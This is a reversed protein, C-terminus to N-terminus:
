YFVRHLRSVVQVLRSHLDVQCVYYWRNSSQKKPTLGLVATLMRGDPSLGLLSSVWADSFQLPLWLDGPTAIAKVESSGLDVRYLGEWDAAWGPKQERRHKPPLWSPAPEPSFKRYRMASFVVVPVGAATVHSEASVDSPLTTLRRYTKGRAPRRFLAACPAAPSTPIVRLVVTESPGNYLLDKSGYGKPLETFSDPYVPFDSDAM